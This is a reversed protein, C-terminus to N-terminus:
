RPWGPGGATGGRLAGQGIGALLAGEEARHPWRGEVRSLAMAQPIPAAALPALVIDRM